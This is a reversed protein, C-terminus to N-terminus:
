RAIFDMQKKIFDEKKRAIIELYEQGDTNLFIKMERVNIYNGNKTLYVGEVAIRNKRFDIDKFRVHIFQDKAAAFSHVIRKSKLVMCNMPNVMMTNKHLPLVTESLLRSYGTSGMPTAFLIGDGSIPSDSIFQIENEFSKDEIALEYRVSLSEQRDVWIDNFASFSFLNGYEDKIEAVLKPFKLIVCKGKFLYELIFADIEEPAIDILNKGVTGGNIPLVPLGKLSEDRVVDLLSGDGGIVIVAEAKTKDDTAQVLRIVSEYLNSNRDYNHNTKYIYFLTNKNFNAFNKEKM